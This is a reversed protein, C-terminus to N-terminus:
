SSQSEVEKMEAISLFLYFDSATELHELTLFFFYSTRYSCHETHVPMLGLEWCEYLVIPLFALGRAGTNLNWMELFICSCGPNNSNVKRFISELLPVGCTPVAKCSVCGSFWTLVLVPVTDQQHSCLGTFSSHFMTNSSLHGDANFFIFWIHYQTNCRLYSFFGLVM